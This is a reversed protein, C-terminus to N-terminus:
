AASVARDPIWASPRKSETRMSVEAAELLQVVRLGADGDTLPREGTQICNVFHQCAVELAETQDVKPCLMDGVRYQVLAKCRDQDQRFEVGKDFVKLQNEHDLHDYIVM